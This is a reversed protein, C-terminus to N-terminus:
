RKNAAKIYSNMIAALILNLTTFAGIMIVFVFFISATAYGVSDQYNYMLSSWGELTISQFVTIGANLVSNFNM